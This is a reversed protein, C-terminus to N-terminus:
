SKKLYKASAFGTMGKYAVFLWKTGSVATYYGYCYVEAGNPMSTIITDAKTAGAKTRLYLASATVKYKGKLTKDLKEAYDVKPKSASTTETKATPASSKTIGVKALTKDAKSGNGLGCVTHAGAKVYIAGRVCYDATRLYEPDTIIQYGAATLKAKMNSTTWGNGGYTVGSAGSAVAAVNQLSSCDCNCKGVKALDYGVRKAEDNLTNRDKQGYGVNDNACAKEVADAHKERVKEDPHVAMFDWPKSYWARTCVEKKTSDGKEGNATGKESISAHGILVSM